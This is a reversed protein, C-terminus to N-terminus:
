GSLLGWGLVDICKSHFVNGLEHFALLVWLSKNYLFLELEPRVPATFRTLRNLLQVLFIGLIQLKHSQM